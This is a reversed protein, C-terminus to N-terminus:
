NIPQHDPVYFAPPREWPHTPPLVSVTNTTTTTRLPVHYMCQKTCQAYVCLPRQSTMHTDPRHRSAQRSFIQGM